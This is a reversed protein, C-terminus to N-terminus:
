TITAELATATKSGDGQLRALMRQGTNKAGPLADMDGNLIRLSQPAAASALKLFGEHGGPGMAARLVEGADAGAGANALAASTDTNDLLGGPRMFRGIMNGAHQVGGGNLMPRIFERMIGEAAELQLKSMATENLQQEYKSLNTAYTLLTTQEVSNLKEGSAWKRYIERMDENAALAKAENEWAQADTNRAQAEAQNAEATYRRRALEGNPGRQAEKLLAELRQVEINTLRAQSEELEKRIGAPITFPMGNVTFKKGSQMAQVFSRADEIGLERRIGELGAQGQWLKMKEEMLKTLATDSLQNLETPFGKFNPDAAIDKREKDSLNRFKELAVDLTIQGNDFPPGVNFKKFFVQAALTYSQAQAGEQDVKYLKLLADIPVNDGQARIWERSNASAMLAIFDQQNKLSTGKAQLRDLVVKLAATAEINSMQHAPVGNAEPVATFSLIQGPTLNLAAFEDQLQQRLRRLEENATAAAVEAESMDAINKDAM